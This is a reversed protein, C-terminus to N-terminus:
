SPLFFKLEAAVVPTQSPKWCLSLSPLLLSFGPIFIVPIEYRGDAAASKDTFSSAIVSTAQFFFLVCLVWLFLCVM